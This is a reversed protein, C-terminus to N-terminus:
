QGLHGCVISNVVFYGNTNYDTCKVCTLSNGKLFLVLFHDVKLDTLM